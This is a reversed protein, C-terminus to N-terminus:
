PVLPGRARVGFVAPHALGRMLIGRERVVDEILFGIDLALTQHNGVYLVPRGSEPLHALGRHVRGQSDTSFNVPSVLRRLWKTTRIMCACRAQCWVRVLSGQRFHSFMCSTM